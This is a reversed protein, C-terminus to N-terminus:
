PHQSTLSRLGVEVMAFAISKKLRPSHVGSTVKGVPKGNTTIQWMTTNPGKLATCHIEMGVPRRKVGADRIRKLAAKEAFDAEMDLNVLRDLGLNLSNTYIGVDAYCSQMGSEVCRISSTYGPKLNLPQGATMIKDFLESGSSGDRLFLEYGLEISWGTHSSVVLPIGDLEIECFCYYKFSLIDEGFLVKMM